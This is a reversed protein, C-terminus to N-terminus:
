YPLLYDHGETIHGEQVDGEFAPKPVLLMVYEAWSPLVVIGVLQSCEHKPQLNLDAVSLLQLARLAKGKALVSNM